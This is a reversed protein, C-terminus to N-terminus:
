TDARSGGGGKGGLAFPTSRQDAAARRVVALSGRPPRRSTSPAAPPVAWPHLGYGARAAGGEATGAMAKPLFGLSLAEPLM